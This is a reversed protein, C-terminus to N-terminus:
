PALGGFASSPPFPFRSRAQIASRGLMDRSIAVRAIRFPSLELYAEPFFRAAKTPSAVAAVGCGFHPSPRIRIVDVEM